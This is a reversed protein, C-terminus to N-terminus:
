QQGPVQAGGQPKGLSQQIAIKQQLKTTEQNLLVAQVRSEIQYTLAQQRLNENSQEVLEVAQTVQNIQKQRQELDTSMAGIIASNQSLVEQAMVLPNDFTKIEIYPSRLVGLDRSGSLDIPALTQTHNGQHIEIQAPIVSTTQVAGQTGQSSTKVAQNQEQETITTIGIHQAILKREEPSYLTAKGTGQKEGIHTKPTRSANIQKAAATITPHAVGLEAATQRTSLTEASIIKPVVTTQTM